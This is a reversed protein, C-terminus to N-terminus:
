KLIGSLWHMINLALKRNDVNGVNMGIPQNDSGTLQASLMTADGLVVVRGKGARFAIGQARGAASTNKGPPKVEDVATDALKLFADSGQPGKLSQGSFVLVRNLREAPERGNTLPSEALQHNERSYAIVSPTDLEKETNAPDITQTKSMEIGLRTALIETASGFPVADVILLLAGGGRVWDNVADCEETTFAPRDAGEDDVDEVGLPNAIILIKHTQLSAKTFPQRNVAIHYGDNFLLDAFPKYRGSTSESNNHAEDFLVRPFNKTFAPKDVRADFHPDAIQQARAICILSLVLAITAATIKLNLIIM